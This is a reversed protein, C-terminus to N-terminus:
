EKRLVVYSVELLLVSMLKPLVARCDREVTGSAVATWIYIQPCLLSKITVSIGFWELHLNWVSPEVSRPWVLILILIFHM